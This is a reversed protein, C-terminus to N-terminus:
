YLKTILIGVLNQDDFSSGMIDTVHLNNQQKVMTNNTARLM